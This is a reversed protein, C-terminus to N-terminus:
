GCVLVLRHTITVCHEYWAISDTAESTAVFDLDDDGDFNAPVVMHALGM